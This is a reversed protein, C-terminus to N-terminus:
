STESSSNVNTSSNVSPATGTSSRIEGFGLVYTGPVRGANSPSNTVNVPVPSTVAVTWATSRTRGGVGAGFPFVLAHSASSKSPNVGPLM